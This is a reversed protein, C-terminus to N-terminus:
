VHSRPTDDNVPENPIPTSETGFSDLGGVQYEGIKEDLEADHALPLVTPHPKNVLAEAERKAAERAREEEPDPAFPKEDGRFVYEHAM